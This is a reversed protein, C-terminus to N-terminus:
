KYTTLILDKVMHKGFHDIAEQTWEGKTKRIVTIATDISLPTEWKVNLIVPHQNLVMQKQAEKVPFFKLAIGDIIKNNTAVPSIVFSKVTLKLSDLLVNLPKGTYLQKKNIVETEVYRLTDGAITTAPAQQAKCSICCAIVLISIVFKM